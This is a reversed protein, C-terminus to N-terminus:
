KRGNNPPAVIIKKAMSWSIAVQTAGRQVVVPGKMMAASKKVITAGTTIGMVDLKAVAQRGGSIGTVVAERGKELSILDLLAEQQQPENHWKGSFETIRNLTEPSIIHEIRCSDREAIDAPVGLVDTFFKVLLTHSAYVRRAAATGKETLEVHGYREHNVLGQGQLLNLAANVSPMSVGQKKSIDKVRVVQQESNLLLITELYDETSESLNTAM